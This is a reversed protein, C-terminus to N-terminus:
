QQKEVKTIYWVGDESQCEYRYGEGELEGVDRYTEQEIEDDIIAKRAEEASSYCENWPNVEEDEFWEVVTWIEQNNM